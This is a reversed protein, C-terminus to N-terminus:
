DCNLMKKFIELRTSLVGRRIGAAVSAKGGEEELDALTLKMGTDDVIDDQFYRNGIAELGENLLKNADSYRKEIIAKDAESLQDSAKNYIEVDGSCERVEGGQSPRSADANACSSLGIAGCFVYFVVSNLKKLFGM